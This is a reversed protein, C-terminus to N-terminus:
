PPLSITNPTNTCSQPSPSRARCSRHPPCPAPPNSHMKPKTFLNGPTFSNTFPLKTIVVRHLKDVLDEFKAPSTGQGRHPYCGKQSHLRAAKQSCVGLVLVLLSPSNRYPGLQLDIHMLTTLRSWHAPRTYSKCRGLLRRLNSRTTMREVILRGSM